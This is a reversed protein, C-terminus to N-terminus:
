ILTLRKNELCIRGFLISSKLRICGLYELVQTVEMRNDRCLKGYDSCIQPLYPVNDMEFVGSLEGLYAQEGAADPIM